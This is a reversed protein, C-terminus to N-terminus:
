SARDAEEQAKPRRLPEVIVSAAQIAKEVLDFGVLLAMLQSEEARALQRAEARYDRNGAM